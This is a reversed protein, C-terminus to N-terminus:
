VNGCGGKVQPITIEWLRSGIRIRAPRVFIPVSRSHTRRFYKRGVETAVILM